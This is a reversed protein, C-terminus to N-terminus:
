KGSLDEAIEIIESFSDAKLSAGGILGGDVDPQSLLEGANEPKMSGGYLIRVENSREKSWREGLLLRIYQHMEQAQEPTATEGTGIAWVPEYAIVFDPAQDARLHKLVTDLQQQVVKQHNGAKRQELKEGVCLIPKLGEDLIKTVKSAIFDDSENFYERRESHGAIVYTCGAEKVMSCSIEGTYAGNDEPYINQVGTEINTGTLESTVSAVSLFPPCVLVDSKFNEGAWKVKLAAALTGAEAPGANMKWNGAILFKRM